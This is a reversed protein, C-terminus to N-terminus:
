SIVGNQCLAENYFNKYQLQIYKDRFLSKRLEINKDDLFINSNQQLFKLDSIIYEVAQPRITDIINDICELFYYDTPADSLIPIWRMFALIHSSIISDYNTSTDLLMEGKQTNMNPNYTNGNPNSSLFGNEYDLVLKNHISLLKDGIEPYNDNELEFIEKIKKEYFRNEEINGSFFIVQKNQKIDYTIIENWNKYRFLELFPKNNLDCIKPIMECLLYKILPHQHKKYPLGVPNLISDLNKQSVANANHKSIFFNLYSNFEGLIKVDEEKIDSIIGTEAGQEIKNVVDKIIYYWKILFYDKNKQRKTINGQSLSLYNDKLDYFVNKFHKPLIFKKNKIYNKLCEIEHDINYTVNDLLDTCLKEISINCCQVLNYLFLREPIYFEYKM